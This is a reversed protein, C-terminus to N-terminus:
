ILKSTKSGRASDWTFNIKPVGKARQLGGCTSPDWGRDEKPLYPDANPLGEEGWSLGEKAKELVM